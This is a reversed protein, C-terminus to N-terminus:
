TIPSPHPRDGPPNKTTFYMRTECLEQHFCATGWCAPSPDGPSAVDGSAGESGRECGMFGSQQAQYGAAWGESLFRIM